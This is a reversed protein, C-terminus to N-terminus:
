IEITKELKDWNDDSFIDVKVPEFHVDGTGDEFESKGNNHPNAKAHDISDYESLADSEWKATLDDVADEWSGIISDEGDSDTCEEGDQYLEEGEILVEKDTPVGFHTEPGCEFTFYVKYSAM